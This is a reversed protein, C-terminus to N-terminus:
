ELLVQCAVHSTKSFYYETEWSVPVTDPGGASAKASIMSISNSLLQRKVLPSSELVFAAAAVNSGWVEWKKPPPTAQSANVLNEWLIM